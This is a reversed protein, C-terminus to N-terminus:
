VAPKGRKRNAWWVLAAGIVILVAGEYAYQIHNAMFGVPVIGTGQLVFFAGLVALLVGVISVVWKMDSEMESGHTRPFISFVRRGVKHMKGM